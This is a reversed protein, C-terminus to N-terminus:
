PTNAEPEYPRRSPSLLPTNSHHDLDRLARASLVGYIETEMGLPHKTRDGDKWYELVGISWYYASILWTATCGRGPTVWLRTRRTRIRNHGKSPM